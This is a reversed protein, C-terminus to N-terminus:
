IKKRFAELEQKKKNYFRSMAVVHPFSICSIFVFFVTKWNKYDMSFWNNQVCVLAIGFLAFAALTFPFAKLYLIKDNTALGKKLHAWGNMSHQGIFYLGFASILPLQTGIALTCVSIILAIRKEMIGWLLAGIITAETIYNAQKETLIEFGLGLDSLVLTTEGLHGFLLISFLIFGWIWNKINWKGEMKWEQMDTQGFHWISYVLFFLIALPAFAKWILLYFFAAGLYRIIFGIDPRSKLIGKELLHDVAGHPIGVALLGIFFLIKQADEFFAPFHKYVFWLLMSVMLVLIPTTWKKLNVIADIAFAQIFPIIPLSLLIRLDQPLTTKEELFPLVEKIKNRQFLVQFIPKGHWPKRDLIMLLLRDYFRFRSSSPIGKPEIGQQIDDGIKEAHLYMKKFAYGTSPKIAGARGGISVLGPINEKETSVNSMPICGTEVDLVDHAGFRENIYEKLLPEADSLRIASKGFRTLEVLMKNEGYPLVYVFQTNNQQDVEFDMLDIVDHSVSNKQLSVVYGVFSQLLHSENEKPSLYKPPRSDFVRKAYWICKDTTVEVGREANRVELVMQQQTEVGHEGLQRRMEEYLSLSSIQIYNLPSISEPENRNVSVESWRHGILHQCSRVIDEQDEAWFCYTKDNTKKEDPDLVVFKRNNLLGRRNLSMLLLTASAGSGIFLYDLLDAKDHKTNSM